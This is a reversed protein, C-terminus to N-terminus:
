PATVTNGEVWQRTSGVLWTPDEKKGPNNLRPRVGRWPHRRPARWSRERRPVSEIELQIARAETCADRPSYLTHMTERPGARTVRVGLAPDRLSGCHSGGNGLRLFSPARRQWPRSHKGGNPTRHPTQTVWGISASAEIADDPPNPGRSRSFQEGSYCVWRLDVQARPSRRGYRQRRHSGGKWIWWIKRKVYCRGVTSNPRRAVQAHVAGTSRRWPAHPWRRPWTAPTPSPRTVM